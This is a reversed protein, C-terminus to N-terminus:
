LIYLGHIQILITPNRGKWSSPDKWRLSVALLRRFLKPLWIAVERLQRSMHVNTPSFPPWFRAPASIELPSLSAPSPEQHTTVKELLLIINILGFIQSQELKKNKTYEHYQFKEAGNFQLMLLQPSKRNIIHPLPCLCSCHKMDLGIKGRRCCNLTDKDGVRLVM